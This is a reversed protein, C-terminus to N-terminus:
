QCHVRELICPEYISAFLCPHKSTTTHAQFINLTSTVAIRYINHPSHM